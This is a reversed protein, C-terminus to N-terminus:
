AFSKALRVRVVAALERRVTRRETEDDQALRQALTARIEEATRGTPDILFPVGFRAEYAVAEETGAVAAVTAAPDALAQQVDSWGLATLVGDSTAGLEAPSRFPRSAVLVRQWSPSACAPALLALAEDPPAENFASIAIREDPV